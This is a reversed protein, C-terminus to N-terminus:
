RGGGRIAEIVDRAELRWSTDGSHLVFVFETDDGTNDRLHGSLLRLIEQTTAQNLPVYEGTMCETCGCGPPDIATPGSPSMLSM